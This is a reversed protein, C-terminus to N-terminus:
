ARLDQAAASEKRCAPRLDTSIQAEVEVHTPADRVDLGRAPDIYVEHIGSEVIKRVQEEDHVLFKSRLFPHAMWDSGLDCIFM